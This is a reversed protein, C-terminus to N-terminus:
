KDVPKGNGPLKNAEDTDELSHWYAVQQKM